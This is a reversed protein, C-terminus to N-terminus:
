KGEGFMLLGMGRPLPKVGAPLAVAQVGQGPIIRSVNAAWVESELKTLGTLEVLPIAVEATWGEKNANVEVFWQPNWTVDGCCDEMVCGRADVEFHFASGYDRDLDILLSIRDYARLDDDRKRPKVPSLVPMETPQDCTVGLYLYTDDFAMQVRTRAGTLGSAAQLTTVPVNKWVAEDLKGDLKPMSKIRMAQLSPKPCIGSKLTIWQEALAADHWVGDAERMQFAMQRLNGRDATQDLRENALLCFQLDSDGYNLPNLVSYINAAAQTGGHWRRLESRYRQLVTRQKLNMGDPVLKSLNNLDSKAGPTRLVYDAYHTMKGLDARRRLESSGMMTAIFRCSEPALRHTPMVDLLLLHCERAMSWMGKDAFEQAMAFLRDGQTLPALGNLSQELNSFFKKRETDSHLKDIFPKADLKQRYTAGLLLQYRLDDVNVKERRAQGGHNLSIGSLMDEPVANNGPLLCGLPGMGRLVMMVPSFNHYPEKWNKWLTYGEEQPGRVYKDFLMPRALGAFDNASAFLVPRPLDLNIACDLSNGATHRTFLRSPQWPELGLRTIQEPYADAKGSLDCAKRLMLAVVAALPGTAGKGDIAETVVVSPRWMRLTMVLHELLQQQELVEMLKGATMHQQYDAVTIRSLVDTCAGGVTRVAGNLKHSDSRWQGPECTAQVGVTLYGQDGGVMAMSGLPMQQGQATIMMVATRQGGRRLLTWTKGADKTGLITGLEGIAFGTMDNSFSMAHLPMPQGTRQAEWTKGRDSSHYVVTGPRGAIWVHDGSCAVTNFDLHQMIAPSLPLTVPEFSKGGTQRSLLVTAHTGVAWMDQDRVCLSNLCIPEMGKRALPLVQEKEVLGVTAGPGAAVPEDHMVAGCTWGPSSALAAYPRWTQGGNETRFMGSAYGGTTDGFAFGTDADLMRIATLGPLDRHILKKWSVGGDTTKLVVGGTGRNFPLPELGVAYGIYADVFHVSRLMVRVNTRQQEWTQWGDVTHLILGDDGVAWGEKATAMHIARLAADPTAPAEDARIASSILLLCFLGLRRM